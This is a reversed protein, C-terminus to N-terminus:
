ASARRYFPTRVVRALLVKGRIAIGLETGEKALEVPVYALGVNKDLSPAYMGSTVHGVVRGGWLVEYGHRPIGRDVMEFGVLRKQPGEEKQRLLAERGIFAPKEFKVFRGLGAELPTVDRTLEQGYLPLRAEFRLSDRAGLGCPRLGEEAGIELLRRFLPAADEPRLYIEFGDEGTYGTRSVLAPRGDVRVGERFMYYKVSDLDIDVLRQLIAEARPGQIALLAFDDSANELRVGGFVAAEGQIWNFDSEINAANVVLLFRDEGLRYVLLDDVIGGDPACMPSYQVQGVALASAQNTILHDLFAAAKEGEVLIEGMHSVDFLGARERVARHEDLISTYQIPMDWGGFDVMRAGLRLHEEYLPTRKGTGM